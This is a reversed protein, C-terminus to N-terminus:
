RPSSWQRVALAASQSAGSEAVYFLDVSTPGRPYRVDATQGPMLLSGQLEHCPFPVEGAM